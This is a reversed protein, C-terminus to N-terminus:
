YGAKRLVKAPTLIITAYPSPKQSKETFANRNGTTSKKESAVKPKLVSISLGDEFEVHFLIFHPNTSLYWVQLVSADHVERFVPV